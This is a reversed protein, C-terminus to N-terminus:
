LILQVAPFLPCLFINFSLSFLVRQRGTPILHKRGVEQWDSGMQSTTGCTAMSTILPGTNHPVTAFFFYFTFPIEHLATLCSIGPTKSTPPYSCKLWSAYNMSPTEAGKVPRIDSIQRILSDSPQASPVNGPTGHRSKHYLQFSFLRSFLLLVCLLASHPTFVPRSVCEILCLCPRAPRGVTVTCYGSLSSWPVIRSRSASM